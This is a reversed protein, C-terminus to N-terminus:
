LRLQLDPPARSHWLPPMLLIVGDARAGPVRWWGRLLYSWQLEEIDQQSFTWPVAEWKETKDEEAEPLVWGRSMWNRKCDGFKHLDKGLYKALYGATQRANKASKIWVVPSGTLEKWWSSLIKQHVYGARMLLHLHPWGAETAESVAIYEIPADTLRKWRKLLAPLKEGILKRAAIPCAGPVRQLTLTLFKNPQGLRAQMIFQAKRKPGCDDCKWSRCATPKMVVADETDYLLSGFGCM